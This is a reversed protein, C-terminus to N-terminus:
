FQAWATCWAPFNTRLDKTWDAGTISLSVNVTVFPSAHWYTAAFNLSVKLFIIKKEPLVNLQGHKV